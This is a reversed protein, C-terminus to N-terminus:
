SIPLPPAFFLCRPGYAARPGRTPGGQDLSDFEKVIMCFVVVTIRNETQSRNFYLIKERM